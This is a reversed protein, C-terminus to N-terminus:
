LPQEDYIISKCSIMVAGKVPKEKGSFVSCENSLTDRM